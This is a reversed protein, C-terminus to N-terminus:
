YNYLRTGVTTGDVVVGLLVGVATGDVAVGLTLGVKEGESLGCEMLTIEVMAPVPLEPELPSLPGAVDAVISPGCPM